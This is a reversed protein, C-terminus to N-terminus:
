FKFDVRHKKESSVMSKQIRFNASDSSTCMSDVVETSESDALKVQSLCDSLDVFGDGKAIELCHGGDGGFYRAMVRSVDDGDISKGDLLSKRVENSVSTVARMINSREQQYLGMSYLKGGFKNQITSNSVASVDSMEKLIGVMVSPEKTAMMLASMFKRALENEKKCDTNAVGTVFDMNNLIKSTVDGGIRFKSHTDQTVQYAMRQLGRFLVKEDASKLAILNDRLVPNEIGGVDFSSLFPTARDICSRTFFRANDKPLLQKLDADGLEPVLLESLKREGNKLGILRVYLVNRAVQGLKSFESIGDKMSLVDVESGISPDSKYVNSLIRKTYATFSDLDNGNYGGKFWLMSDKDCKMTFTAKRLSRGVVDNDLRELINLNDKLWVNYFGAEVTHRIFQNREISTDRSTSAYAIKLDGDEMYFVDPMGSQARSFKYSPYVSNAESSNSKEKDEIYSQKWFVSRQSPSIHNVFEYINELTRPVDVGGGVGRSVSRSPDFDKHMVATQVWALLELTDSTSVAKSITESFEKLREQLKTLPKGNKGGYDVAGWSNQIVEDVDDVMGSFERYDASKMVADYSPDKKSVSSGIEKAHASIAKAIATKGGINLKGDRSFDLLEGAVDACSVESTVLDYVHGCVIGGRNSQGQERVLDIPINEMVGKDWWFEFNSYPMNTFERSKRMNSMMISIFGKRDPLGGRTHLKRLEDVNESLKEAGHQGLKNGCIVSKFFWTSMGRMNYKSVQDDSYEGM